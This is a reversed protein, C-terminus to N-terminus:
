ENNSKEQSDIEQRIEDYRDTDFILLLDEEGIDEKSLMKNAVTRINQIAEPYETLLSKYPEKDILNILLQYEMFLENMGSINFGIEGDKNVTFLSKKAETIDAGDYGAIKGFKIFLDQYPEFNLFAELRAAIEPNIRKAKKAM